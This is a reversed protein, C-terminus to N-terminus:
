KFNKRFTANSNRLKNLMDDLNTRYQRVSARIVEM